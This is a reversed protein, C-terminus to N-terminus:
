EYIPSLASRVGRAINGRQRVIGENYASEVFEDLMKDSNEMKGSNGGFESMWMEPFIM